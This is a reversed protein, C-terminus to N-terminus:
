TWSARFNPQTLDRFAVTMHPSFSRNKSTQYVIGLSTEQTVMLDNHLSLLEPTKLLNIYIVRPVFAGFGKLILPLPTM